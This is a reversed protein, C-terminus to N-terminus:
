RPTPLGGFLRAVAAEGRSLQAIPKGNVLRPLRGEAFSEVMSRHIYSKRAVAPTNGLMQAVERNVEAIQKRLVTRRPDPAARAFREAAAATAALTRFDKASVPSGAIEKLYANVDGATVIRRKGDEDLYQFLRPGPLRCLQEYAEALPRSAIECSFWNGGKGRFAVSLRDGQRSVNRKLLTAAGRSRGSHVYDECGIRIYTKDIVTVVAALAKRRCPEGWRLDRALTRRIRPLAACLDALREVKREERVEEWDPHYRYQVRGADDRGIAQIHADARAAIRVERYAPPIALSRIRALTAADTIRRGGADVYLFGRGCRRRGITLDDDPSVVHLAAGNGRVDTMGAM